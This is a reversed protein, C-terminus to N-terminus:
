YIGLTDPIDKLKATYQDMLKHGNGPAIKEGRKVSFSVRSLSLNLQTSLKAMSM